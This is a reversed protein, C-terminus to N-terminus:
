ASRSHFRRMIHQYFRPSHESRYKQIQQKLKEEAIDVASFMTDSAAHAKLIENPIHLIVEAAHSSTSRGKEQRLIVEAHVMKRARWPLYKDLKGIKASVYGKLREDIEMHEGVFRIQQIM